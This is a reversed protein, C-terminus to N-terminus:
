SAKCLGVVQTAGMKLGWVSRATWNIELKLSKQRAASSLGRSRSRTVGCRLNNVPPALASIKRPSDDPMPGDWASLQGPMKWQM